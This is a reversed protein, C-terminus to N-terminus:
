TRRIPRTRALGVRRPYGPPTPRIKRYLVTARRDGLNLDPPVPVIVDVEAGLTRAAGTAREVEAEVDGSKPFALWGGARVLPVCYELLVDLTAVARATCLDAAERWPKEAGISEVRGELAVTQTLGLDAAVQRMFRVKKGTSDILVVSWGPHLIALPVAPLGAGSGVDVLRIRERRRLASPLAADVTLSDLFLATMIGRPERIGTLNARQNGQRLLQCYRVFRERQIDDLPVCLRSAGELLLPLADRCPTAAEREDIM